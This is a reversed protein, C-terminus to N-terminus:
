ERKRALCYLYTGKYGRMRVYPLAAVALPFCAAFKIRGLTELVRQLMGPMAQLTAKSQEREMQIVDRFSRSTEGPKTQTMGTRLALNIAQATHVIGAAQERMSMVEFGQMELFKKLM